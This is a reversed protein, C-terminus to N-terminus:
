RIVSMEELIKPDTVLDCKLVDRAEDVLQGANATKRERTFEWIKLSRSIFNFDIVRSKILSGGGNYNYKWNELLTVYGLQESTVIQDKNSPFIRVLKGDISYKEIHYRSLTRNSTDESNLRRWFTISHSAKRSTIDLYTKVETDGHCSFTMKLNPDINPSGIPFSGNFFWVGGILVATLLVLLKIWFSSIKQRYM